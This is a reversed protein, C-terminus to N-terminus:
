VGRFSSVRDARDADGVIVKASWILGTASVAGHLRTYFSGNLQTYHLLHAQFCQLLRPSPKSQQAHSWFDDLSGQYTLGVMDYIANGCVKLAVGHHLASLGVTSNIVVAGRACALLKPLNQDHIYICRGQLGLERAREAILKSYDHYARDMPHHKIVLTTQTPAHQAFSAMVEEVFHTISSFNSHSSVQADSNVQLPVLFYSRKLKGLLHQLVGREKIFYHVKRFVSRLWPLVELWTLPRHHQYRFFIPTLLGAAFYYLISWAAMSRYGYKVHKPSEVSLLAKSLYFDALRPLLSRDNVGFEELTVYDPRIYGEEFVGIKLHRKHAIEHAVNHIPRCDGFFLVTDIQLRDLMSEFYSPWDQISGRFHYAGFPFFLGDGGNFNVKFVNAGARILDGKLRWFFPGVPGQLLLVRKGTFATIGPVIM